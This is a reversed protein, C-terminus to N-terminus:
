RVIQAAQAEVFPFNSQLFALLVQELVLYLFILLSKLRLHLSRAARDVFVIQVHGDNATFHGRKLRKIGVEVDLILFKAGFVHDRSGESDEM